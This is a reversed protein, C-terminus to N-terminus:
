QIQMYFIDYKQTIQARKPSFEKFAKTIYALDKSLGGITSKNNIKTVPDIKYIVISKKNRNSPLNIYKNKM